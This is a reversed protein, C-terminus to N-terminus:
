KVGLYEAVQEVVTYKVNKDGHKIRDLQYRSVGSLRAVEQINRDVLAKQIDKLTTM